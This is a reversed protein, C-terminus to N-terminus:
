LTYIACTQGFYLQSPCSGLGSLSRGGIPKELSEWRQLSFLGFATLRYSKRNAKMELSKHAGRITNHPHASCHVDAVNEHHSVLFGLIEYSSQTM